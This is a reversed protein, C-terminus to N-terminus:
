RHRRYLVGTVVTPVAFGLAWGAQRQHDANCSSATPGGSEGTGLVSGCGSGGVPWMLLALVVALGVLAAVGLLRRSSTRM